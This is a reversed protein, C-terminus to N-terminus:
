AAALCFPGPKSWCRSITRCEGSDYQPAADSALGAPACPWSLHALGPDPRFPHARHYGPCSVPSISAALCCSGSADSTSVLLLSFYGASAALTLLPPGPQRGLHRSEGGGRGLRLPARDTDSLPWHHGLGVYRLPSSGLDPRKHSSSSYPM